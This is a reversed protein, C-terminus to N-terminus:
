ILVIKFHVVICWAQWTCWVQVVQVVTHVMMHVLILMIILIYFYLLLHLPASTIVLSLPRSLSERVCWLSSLCIVCWFFNSAPMIEREITANNRLPIHDELSERGGTSATRIM